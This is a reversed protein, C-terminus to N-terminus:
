SPPSLQLFTTSLCPRARPSQLLPSSSSLRDLPPSSTSRLVCELLEQSVNDFALPALALASNPPQYDISSMLLSYHLHPLCPALPEALRISPTTARTSTLKYLRPLQVLCRCSTRTKPVRTHRSYITFIRKPSGDTGRGNRGQFPRAAGRRSFQTPHSYRAPNSGTPPYCDFAIRSNRELHSRRGQDSYALDWRAVSTWGIFFTPPPRHSGTYERICICLVMGYDTM